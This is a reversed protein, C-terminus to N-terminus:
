PTVIHIFLSLLSTGVAAAPLPVPSERMWDRLSLAERAIHRRLGTLVAYPCAGLRKPRELM